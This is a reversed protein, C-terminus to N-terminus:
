GFSAVFRHGTPAALAVPGGPLGRVLVYGLLIIM